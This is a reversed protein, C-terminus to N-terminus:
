AQFLVGFLAYIQSLFQTRKALFYVWKFLLIGSGTSHHQSIHAIDDDDTTSWRALFISDGHVMVTIHNDRIIMLTRVRAM